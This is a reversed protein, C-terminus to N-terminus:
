NNEIRIAKMDEITAIVDDLSIRVEWYAPMAEYFIVVENGEINATMGTVDDMWTLVKLEKTTLELKSTKM